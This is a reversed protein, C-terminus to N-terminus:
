KGRVQGRGIGVYEINLEAMQAPDYQNRGDIIVAQKLAQQIRNFDPNRFPKWETVLVMADAGDLV